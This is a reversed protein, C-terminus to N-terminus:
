KLFNLIITSLNFHIHYLVFMFFMVAIYIRIFKISYINFSFYTRKLIFYVSYLLM